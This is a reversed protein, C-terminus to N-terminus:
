PCHTADLGDISALFQGLEGVSNFGLLRAVNGLGLRPESQSSVHAGLDHYTSALQSTVTGWCNSTGSDALVPLVTVAVLVVALVLSPIIIRKSSKNKRTFM